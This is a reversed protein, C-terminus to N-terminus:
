FSNSIKAEGMLEQIVPPLMELATGEAEQDAIGEEDESVLALM